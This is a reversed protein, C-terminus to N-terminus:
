APPWPGRTSILPPASGTGTSTSRAACRRGSARHLGGDVGAGLRGHDPESQGRQEDDRRGARRTGRPRRGPTTRASRRRARQDASPAVSVRGPRAPKTSATPRAISALTSTKSRARSSYAAPGSAPRRRASVRAEWPRSRRDDVGVDGRQEGAPSSNKRAEPGTRPNPTVKDMPTRAEITDASTTQRTSASARARSPRRRRGRASRARRTPRNRRQSVRRAGVQHPVPAPPERDGAYTARRASVPM